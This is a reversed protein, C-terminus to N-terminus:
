NKKEGNATGYLYIQGSSHPTPSAAAEPEPIGSTMTTESCAVLTFMIIAILFLTLAKIRNM